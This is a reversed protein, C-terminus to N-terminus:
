LIIIGINERIQHRHQFIRIHRSCWSSSTSGWTLEESAESEKDEKSIRKKTREEGPDSNLPSDTQQLSLRIADSESEASLEEKEDPVDDMLSDWDMTGVDVM